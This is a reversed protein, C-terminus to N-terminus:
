DMNQVIQNTVGPIAALVALVQERQPVGSARTVIRGSADLVVTTPTRLINLRRVLALHAEADVDVTDVGDLGAAIDNLLVRTTRCPACFSSSFQVLTAYEGLQSGVDEATLSDSTSAGVAATTGRTPEGAETDMVVSPASFRGNRRQFWVGIVLSAAVAAVLM